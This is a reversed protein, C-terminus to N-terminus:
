SAEESTERGTSAPTERVLSGPRMEEGPQIERLLDSIIAKASELTDDVAQQGKEPDGLSFAYKAVTLGQVVNDNIELAQRRRLQAEALAVRMEAAKTRELALHTITGLYELIEFEESGFFPAYPSTWVVLSGFDFKLLVWDKEGRRGEEIRDITEPLAANADAITLGHADVVNGNEDTLAVAKAGFIEQVHPLFRDTVQKSTEAELLDVVARRMAELSPRRWAARVSEPPSYGFFFFVAAFIALLQVIIDLVTVTEAGDAGGVAAGIALVIALSLGGAAISMLRMRRRAVGPAGQGAQWTKVAMILSLGVWQILLAVLLLRYLSSQGQEAESMEPLTVGMVVVLITLAAAVVEVWRSAAKFSASFRFLFYPFLFFIAIEIKALVQEYIHQPDEPLVRGAVIVGGLTLFTLTMWGAAEERVRIWQIVSVIALLVYVVLTVDELVGNLAEM